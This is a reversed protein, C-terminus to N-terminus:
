EPPRWELAWAQFAGAEMPKAIFYGQAVDCGLEQLLNWHARTEVGEAVAKLKLKKAMDLSSALIVKSSEKETASFVFSQDIKLESFPVRSLQQMSSYGTGYDDISLGFGKMRLRTLNELAKAVDTMAATETIELVMHKPALGQAAVRASIREALGPDTLSKLSLNVSVTAQLGRALWDRGLAASKELVIWTLEDILGGEEMPGIFAYPALLGKEPHRWRALAEAGTVSGDVLSVKPQFFPEFERAALGRRIEEIPMAAAAPRAAKPQPPAYKAILHSLKEQTVPKEIAGLLTIGYARTMAEVSSVLAPDLASSLIVSVARNAEGVHRMFEMGDMGPMELDSIIIDVPTGGGAFVDLAAKGDVAESVKKAGMGALMRVLTRRQFDHDEAVLVHLTEIGM